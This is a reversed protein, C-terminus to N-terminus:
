QKNFPKPIFDYAGKKMAMVAEDISGHGTVLIVQIDPNYEKVRQLVELGDMGPMKLDTIVVQPVETKIIELAKHPDTCLILEHGLDALARSLSDLISQEDDLILLKKKM